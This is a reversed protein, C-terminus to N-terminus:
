LFCTRDDMGQLPIANIVNTPYHSHYSIQSWLRFHTLQLPTLLIHVHTSSEAPQHSPATSAGCIAPLIKVLLAVATSKELLPRSMTTLLHRSINLAHITHFSTAPEIGSKKSKKEIKKINLVEKHPLPLARGSRLDPLRVAM